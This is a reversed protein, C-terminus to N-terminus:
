EEIGGTDGDIHWLSQRGLMEDLLQRDKDRASALLELGDGEALLHAEGIKVTRTRVLGLDTDTDTIKTVHGVILVMLEDGIHHAEVGPAQDTKGIVGLVMMKVPVGEFFTPQTPQSNM